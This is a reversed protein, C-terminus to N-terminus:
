DCSRVFDFIPSRTVRPRALGPDYAVECFHAGFSHMSYQQSEPAAETRAQGDIAALNRLKLIDGFPTGSEVSQGQAHVRGNAFKLTRPDAPVHAALLAEAVLSFGMSLGAALGSWALACSTRKFEEEGERRITEYVIHPGIALREEVKKGEARTNIARSEQIARSPHPKERKMIAVFAWACCLPPFACFPHFHVSMSGGNCTGTSEPSKRTATPRM